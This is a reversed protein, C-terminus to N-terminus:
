IVVAPTITPKGNVILEFELTDVSTTEGGGPTTVSFVGNFAVKSGDPLEWECALMCDEGFAWALAAIRDNGPDGYIRKATFGITFAKGTPLASQYGEQDMQYWTEVTNDLSPSFGELGKIITFTTAEKTLHIGFKHKFAPYLKEM